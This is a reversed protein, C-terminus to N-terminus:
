GNLMYLQTINLINVNHYMTEKSYFCVWGGEYSLFFLIANGKINEHCKSQLYTPLSSMSWIFNLNYDNFGILKERDNDWEGWHFYNKEKDLIFNSYAECSKKM